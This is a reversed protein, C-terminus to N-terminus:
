ATMPLLPDHCLCDFEVPSKAQPGHHQEPQGVHRRHDHEAREAGKRRRAVARRCHGIEDRRERDEQRRYAVADHGLDVRDGPRGIGIGAFREVGARAEEDAPRHQEVIEEQRHDDPQDARGVQGRGERGHRGPQPDDAEDNQRRRHVDDADGKGVPDVDHQHQHLERHQDDEDRKGGAIDDGDVPGAAKGGHPREEVGRHREARGDCAGGDRGIREEAEVGDRRQRLLRALRGAGHWPRDHDDRHDAAEDERARGIDRLKGM